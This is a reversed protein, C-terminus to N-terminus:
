DFLAPDVPKGAYEVQYHLHPGTSRGSNGSDGILQSRAVVEGRAVRHRSLHAYTTTLGHGHDIRLFRGNIRDEGVFTVRGAQAALVPTGVPVAFDIGQHLKRTGLVPHFRFGFPSSIRPKGEIPWRMSYGIALGFAADILPAAARRQDHTLYHSFSAFSDPSAGGSTRSRELAFALSEPDVALAAVAAEDGGFAKRLRELGTYLANERQRASAAEGPWVVAVSALAKRGASTLRVDLFIGEERGESLLFAVAAPLTDEDTANRGAAKSRRLAAQLSALKFKAKAPQSFYSLLPRVDTRRGTMWGFGQQALAGIPTGVLLTYCVFLLLLLDLLLLRPSARRNGSAASPAPKLGRGLKRVEAVLADFRKRQQGDKSSM